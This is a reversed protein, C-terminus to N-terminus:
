HPAKTPRGQKYMYENNFISAQGRIGAPRQMVTFSQSSYKLPQKVIITKCTIVIEFDIINQKKEITSLFFTFIMGIKDGYQGAMTVRRIKSGTKHERKGNKHKMEEECAPWDVCRNSQM